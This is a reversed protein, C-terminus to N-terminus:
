IGLKHLRLNIGCEVDTSGTNNYIIRIILGAPVKARYVNVDMKGTGPIVFWKNVFQEVVGTVPHVVQFVCYDGTHAGDVIVIGGDVYLEEPMTLDLNTTGPSCTTWSTANGRFRFNAPDPLATPTIAPPFVSQLFLINQAPSSSYDSNGDASMTVETSNQLAAIVADDQIWAGEETPPIQFFTGPDISRGRLSLVEQTKNRIYKAM